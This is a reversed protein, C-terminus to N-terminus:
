KILGLYYKEIEDTTKEWSYKQASEAAAQSMKKHKEEDGLLETIKGSIEKEDPQTVYGNVGDQILEAAANTEHRITIAPTGCALAELVTIGFGERQSLSIFIKSSKMHSYIKEKNEQFGIFTLNKEIGLKKSLDMLKEKESGEGIIGVSINPRKKAAEAISKVLLDVNKEKILRGAYLIDFAPESPDTKKISEPNIGNPIITINNEKTGANILRKKTTESVTLNNKTLKACIQEIIEGFVGFFGLYEKWRHRWVEHWTIVLPKKKLISIIKCTFCPFYPFNQCEILDYDGESLAPALKTSFMIAEKISRRGSKKYLNMPPCVGHLIIGDHEVTDEGLWWKIGYWHITHGKEALRKGTEYLRYEAGGKVHPYVADYVFAIKM